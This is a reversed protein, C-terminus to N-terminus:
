SLDKWIKLTRDGVMGGSAIIRATPHAAVALVTDTHGELTQLWRVPPHAVPWRNRSRSIHLAAPRPRATRVM